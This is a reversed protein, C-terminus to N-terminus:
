LIASDNDTSMLHGALVISGLAPVDVASDFANVAGSSDLTSRNTFVLKKVNDLGVSDFNILDINASDFLVVDFIANNPLNSSDVTFKGLTASDYNMDKGSLNTFAGSDATLGSDFRLIDFDGRGPWALPFGTNIGAATPGANILGFGSDYNLFEGSIFDIRASDITASDFSLTVGVVKTFTASDLILFDSDVTLNGTVVLNFQASDADLHGIKMLGTSDSVARHMFNYGSEVMNVANLLSMSRSSLQHAFGGQASDQIGTPTYYSSGFRLKANLDDLDGIQDSVQNVKTQFASLTDTTNFTIKRAM